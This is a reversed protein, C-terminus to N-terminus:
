AHEKTNVLEKLKQILGRQSPFVNREAEDLTFWKYECIEPLNDACYSNCHFKFDNLAGNIDHLLYIVVTKNNLGFGFEFFPSTSINRNLKDDAVIDIGSEEKLERIATEILAEGNESGGKFVTWNHEKQYKETRGLLLKGDQSLVAFGASIVKNM